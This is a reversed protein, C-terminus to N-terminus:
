SVHGRRNIVGAVTKIAHGNAVALTSADRMERVVLGWQVSACAIDDDETFISRWNPEPPTGDGGSIAAFTPDTM